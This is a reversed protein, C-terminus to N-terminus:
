DDEHDPNRVALIKRTYDTNDQLSVDSHRGDELTYIPHFADLRQDAGISRRNSQGTGTPSITPAASQATAPGPWGNSLNRTNLRPARGGGALLGHQSMQSTHRSVSAPPSGNGTGMEPTMAEDEAARRQKMRRWLFLIIIAAVATVGLAIGVAMGAIADKSLGKSSNSAGQGLSGSAVATATASSSPTIIVTSVKTQGPETVVSTYASGTVTETQPDVTTSM